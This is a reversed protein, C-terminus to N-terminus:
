MHLEIESFMGASHNSSADKVVRESLVLTEDSKGDGDSQLLVLTNGEKKEWESGM